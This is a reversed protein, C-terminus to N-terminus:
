GQDEAACEIQWVGVSDMALPPFTKRYFYRNPGIVVWDFGVVQQYDADLFTLLVKAPVIIGWNEVKGEADIYEVACPVKVNPVTTTEPVATPDFPVGADDVAAAGYTVTPKFHFTPQDDENAPLGLGMAFHIGEIFADSDFNPDTAAM